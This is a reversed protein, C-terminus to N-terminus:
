KYIIEIGKVKLENKSKVYHIRYYTKTKFADAFNSKDGVFKGTKSGDLDYLSGLKAYGINLDVLLENDKITYEAFNNYYVTEEDFCEMKRRVVKNGETNYLYEGYQFNVISDFLKVDGYFLKYATKNIISKNLNDDLM